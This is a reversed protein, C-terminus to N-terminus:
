SRSWPMVNTHHLSALAFSYFSADADATGGQPLPNMGFIPTLFLNQTECFVTLSPVSLYMLVKQFTDTYSVM